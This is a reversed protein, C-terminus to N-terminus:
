FIPSNKAMCRSTIENFVCGITTNSSIETTMIPFLESLDLITLELINKSADVNTCKQVKFLEEATLIDTLKPM